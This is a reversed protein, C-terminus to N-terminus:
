LTDPAVLPAREGYVCELGFAELIAHGAARREDVVESTWDSIRAEAGQAERSTRLYDTRSSRTIL